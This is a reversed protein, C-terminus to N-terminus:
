RVVQFSYVVSGAFAVSLFLWVAALVNFVQTTGGCPTKKLGLFGGVVSFPSNRAAGTLVLSKNQLCSGCLTSRHATGRAWWSASWVGCLSRHSEMGSAKALAAVVSKIHEEWMITKLEAKLTKRIIQTM